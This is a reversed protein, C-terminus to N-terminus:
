LKNFVFLYLFKLLKYQRFFRKPESILRYFWELNLNIWFNPARKVNGVYVDFSGGVGMYFAEPYNIQCKQIFMEQKPSGLAVFVVSAGSAKIKEIVLNEDNYYGDQFGAIRVNTQNSLKNVCNEIVHPKSGVLFVENNSTVVKEIVALWLQVGPIRALKKGSKKEMAKVVGIGDAYPVTATLLTDKVNKSEISKIIKEPNIAIAVGPIVRGTPEFISEVVHTTSEFPLIPIDGIIIPSLPAQSM